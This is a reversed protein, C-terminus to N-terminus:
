PQQEKIQNILDIFQKIYVPKIPRHVPVTVVSPYAPHSFVYHIGGHHRIEVGFKEAVGILADIRWDRPNNRMKALTTDAGSVIRM